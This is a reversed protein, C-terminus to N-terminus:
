KTKKLYLYIGGFTLGILISIIGIINATQTAGIVNGTIGSPFLISFLFGAISIIALSSHSRKKFGIFRFKLHYKEALDELDKQRQELSQQHYTRRGYKFIPEFQEQNDIDLKPTKKTKRLVLYGYLKGSTAGRTAIIETKTNSDRMFHYVDGGSPYSMERALSYPSVFWRWRDDIPHTHLRARGKYRKLVESDYGTGEENNAQSIEKLGEPTKIYGHELKPNPTSEIIKKPNRKKLQKM